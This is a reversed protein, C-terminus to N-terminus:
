RLARWSSTVDMTSASSRSHRCCLEAPASVAAAPEAQNIIFFLLVGGPQSGRCHCPPCTRVWTLQMTCSGPPASEAAEAAAAFAVRLRKQCNRPFTAISFDVSRDTVAGFRLCGRTSGQRTDRRQTGQREQTAAYSADDPMCGDM